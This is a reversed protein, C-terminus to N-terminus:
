FPEEENDGAGAPEPTDGAPKASSLFDIRHGIIETSYRTEGDREYTSTRVSGTVAVLDGKRKWTALAEATKGFVTLSIFDAQDSGPRDVALTFWCRPTSGGTQLQPTKCIRGTVTVCNM